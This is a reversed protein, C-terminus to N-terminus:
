VLLSRKPALLIRFIITLLHFQCELPDKQSMQFHERVCLLYLWATVALWGQDPPPNLPWPSSQVPARPFLLYLSYGAPEIVWWSLM